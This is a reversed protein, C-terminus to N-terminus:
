KRRSGPGGRKPLLVGGVCREHVFCKVHSLDHVLREVDFETFSRLRAVCTYTFGEGHNTYKGCHDPGFEDSRLMRKEAYQKRLCAELFDRAKPACEGHRHMAWMASGEHYITAYEDIGALPQYARLRVVRYQDLEVTNVESGPLVDLTTTPVKGAYMMEVAPFFAQEAGRIIEWDKESYM